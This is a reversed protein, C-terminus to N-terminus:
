EDHTDKRLNAHAVSAIDEVRLLGADVARKHRLLTEPPPTSALGKVQGADPEGGDVGRTSRGTFDKPLRRMETALEQILLRREGDSMQLLMSRVGVSTTDYAPFVVPGLEYLSVEQITRQIGEVGAWLLDDVQEAKLKKGEADRWEERTVSFRFSMGDIAGGEIAQRIPEVKANDYLRAQVYLGTDDENLQEITGIPITGTAPDHGHDFQLVPTKARISKKFAGPAITEDWAGVWDQIRSASNFVAAYGTLTRGDGVPETARFEVARFEPGNM